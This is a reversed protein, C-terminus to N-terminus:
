QLILTLDVTFLEGQEQILVSKNINFYENVVSCTFLGFQQQYHSPSYLLVAPGSTTSMLQEGEKMLQVTYEEPNGGEASCNLAVSVSGTGRYMNCVITHDSQIEVLPTETVFSIILGHLYNSKCLKKGLTAITVQLVSELICDLYLSHCVYDHSYECGSFLTSWVVDHCDAYSVITYDGAWSENYHPIDIMLYSENTGYFPGGSSSLYNALKGDSYMIFNWSRFEDPKEYEVSVTFAQNLDGYYHLVKIETIKETNSSGSNFCFLIYNAPKITHFIIINGTLSLHFVLPGFVAQHQLVGLTLPDCKSPDSADHNLETVRVEYQGIDNESANVITLRTNNLDFQYHDYSYCDICLGKHFWHYKKIPSAIIKKYSSHDSVNFQLVVDDGPTFQVVPASVYQLLGAPM